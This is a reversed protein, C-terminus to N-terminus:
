VAGAFYHDATSAFNVDGCNEAAYNAKRSRRAGAPTALLGHLERAELVATPLHSGHCTEDFISRSLILAPPRRHTVNFRLGRREQSGLASAFIFPHPLVTKSNHALDPSGTGVLIMNPVTPDSTWRTVAAPQRVLDDDSKVMGAVLGIVLHGLLQEMHELHHQRAAWQRRVSGPPAVHFAQDRRM